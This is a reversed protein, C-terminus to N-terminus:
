PAPVFVVCVPSALGVGDPTQTLAGTKQDIHFVVMNNSDQNAAILYAGTPDLGFFRPTKGETSVQTSGTLKGGAGITFVSISNDGRNSAYLFKGNPHVVIEAGSITPPPASGEGAHWPASPLTQLETMGGKGDYTFAVVSDTMETMLYVFKGNPAFAIHRPGSGPAISVSPPTNPTLSGDAGIQYEMLKDMGLDPVFLLKNDPSVVAEHAHPGTQRSRNVSSGQHQIASVSEGLSGDAKVPFSAVSGNNYNAAFLWKGTKDLSVYCPGSGKSSVSNLQKLAGTAADVSFATVTGQNNENAAYLFKRNPSLALFSPNSTEAAVGISTFKGTKADFKYAYIGKSTPTPRQNTYTGVYAIYQDAPPAAYLSLAAALAAASIPIARRRSM